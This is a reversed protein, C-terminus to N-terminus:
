VGCVGECEHGFLDPGSAMASLDAQALPVRSHHLYVEGHFRAVQAPEDGTDAFIACDPAEIEGRAAMLALTTSQVGAGLSLVRLKPADLLKGGTIYAVLAQHLNPYAGDDAHGMPSDGILEDIATQSGWDHCCRM